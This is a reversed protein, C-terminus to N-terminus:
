KKPTRVAVLEVEIILASNPPILTTGREGYALVAPIFLQWRSGESMMPLADNLGPFFSNTTAIFTRKNQYTDEVVTGDALKAILNMEVSDAESPHLGKGTKLIVYRVGNPLMGVGPRDRLAAFLQQEQRAARELQGARQYAAVRPGISSDPILRPRNKFMDDMGNLFLTPNSILFGNSNIWQAVFAGLTYQMTDSASTLKVPAVRDTARVTSKQAFGTRFFLIGLAAIVLRKIM